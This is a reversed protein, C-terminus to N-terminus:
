VRDTCQLLSPQQVEIFALMCSDENDTDTM